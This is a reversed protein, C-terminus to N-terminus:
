GVLGKTIKYINRLDEDNKLHMLMIITENLIYDSATLNDAEQLINAIEKEYYERDM